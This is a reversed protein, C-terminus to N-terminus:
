KIIKNQPYMNSEKGIFTIEYKEDPLKKSIWM